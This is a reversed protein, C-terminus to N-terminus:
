KKTTRIQIELENLKSIWDSNNSSFEIFRKTDKFFIDVFLIPNLVQNIMPIREPWEILSVQEKIKHWELRHYDKETLRYLDIHHINFKPTQYINELIFTPSNVIMNPDNLLNKIIVQSLFTKGSGIDGKLLLADKPQLKLSLKKGIKIADRKKEIPFLFKKM